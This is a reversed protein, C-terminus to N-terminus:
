SVRYVEYVVEHARHVGTAVYPATLLFAYNSPTPPEFSMSVRSSDGNITGHIKCPISTQTQNNIDTRLLFSGEITRQIAGAPGTIAFWGQAVMGSGIRGSWQGKSVDSFVEDRQQVHVMLKFDFQVQPTPLKRLHDLTNNVGNPQTMPATPVMPAAAAVAPTPNVAQYDACARLHDRQRSTNKARQTGCYRCRVTSCKDGAKPQFEEFAAHITALPIDNPDPAAQSKKPQKVASKQKKRPPGEAPGPIMGPMNGNIRQNPAFGMNTTGGMGLAANYQDGGMSLGTPGDGDGDADDGDADADIAAEPHAQLYLKCQALHQKQRTTNKAKVENCYICQVRICKTGTDATVPLERFALSLQDAHRPSM